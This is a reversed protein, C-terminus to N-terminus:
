KKFWRGRMWRWLVYNKSMILEKIYNRRDEISMSLLKEREETSLMHWIWWRRYNVTWTFVTWSLNIWRRGFGRFTGNERRDCIGNNNEDVFYPNNQANAWTYDPDMRNLIGDNDFDEQWDCIGNKNTDPCSWDSDMWKPWFAFTSVTLVTLVSLTLLIIKKM